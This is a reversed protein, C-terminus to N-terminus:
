VLQPTTLAGGESALEPRSNNSFRRPPTLAGRRVMNGERGGPETEIHGRVPFLEENEEFSGELSM